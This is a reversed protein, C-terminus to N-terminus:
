KIFMQSIELFKLVPKLALNPQEFVDITWFSFQSNQSLPFAFIMCTIEISIFLYSWLKHKISKIEKQSLQQSIFKSSKIFIQSIKSTVRALGFDRVGIKIRLCTEAENLDNGWFLSKSKFANNRRCSRFNVVVCQNWFFHLLLLLNHHTVSISKFAFRM